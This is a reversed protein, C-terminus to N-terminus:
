DVCGHLTRYFDTKVTGLGGFPKLGRMWSSHSRLMFRQKQEMIKIWVDM